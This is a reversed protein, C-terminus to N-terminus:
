EDTTYVTSTQNIRKEDTRRVTSTQQRGRDVPCWCIGVAYSVSAYCILEACVQRCVSSWRIDFLHSQVTQRDTTQWLNKFINLVRRCVFCVGGSSYRVDGSSRCIFRVFVLRSGSLNPVRVIRTQKRQTVSSYFGFLVKIDIFLTSALDMQCRIQLISEIM